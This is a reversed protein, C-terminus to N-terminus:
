LVAGIRCVNTSHDAAVFAMALTQWAGQPDPVEQLAEVLTSYQPTDM